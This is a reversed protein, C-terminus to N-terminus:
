SFLLGQSVAHVLYVVLLLLGFGVAVITTVADGNLTTLPPSIVYVMFETSLKCASGEVDVRFHYM